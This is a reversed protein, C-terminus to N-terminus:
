GQRRDAAQKSLMKWVSRTAPTTTPPSSDGEDVDDNRIEDLRSAQPGAGTGTSGASNKLQLRQMQRVANEYQLKEAVTMNKDENLGRLKDRDALFPLYVATLGITVVTLIATSVVYRSGVPIRGSM